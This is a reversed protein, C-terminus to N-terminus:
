ENPKRKTKKITKKATHFTKLKIYDWNNIKAKTTKAMSSIHCITFLVKIALNSHHHPSVHTSTSYSIPPLFPLPLICYLEPCSPSIPVYVKDGGVVMLLVVVFKFVFFLEFQWFILSHPFGVTFCNFFFYKNLSSPPASVPMQPLSSMCCPPPQLVPQALSHNASQTAGYKCSSLHPPVVTSCAPRAIWPELTPFYLRLVESQFFFSHTNLCCSFSGTECSLESSLGVFDQFMCLVVQGPILVLLALNPKPFHPFHSFAALLWSVCLPM